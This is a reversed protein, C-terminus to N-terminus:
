LNIFTQKLDAILNDFKKSKVIIDDIYVEVNRGVQDTFCQLMCLQYMADANKSGSPMSVYCLTGFPIIFTTAHQDTKKM